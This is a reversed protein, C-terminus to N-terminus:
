HRQSSLSAKYSSNISSKQNCLLGTTRLFTITLLIDFHILRLELGTLPWVIRLFCWPLSCVFQTHRRRGSFDENADYAFSHHPGFAWQCMRNYKRICQSVGPHLWGGAKLHPARMGQCKETSCGPPVLLQCVPTLCSTFPFAFAM